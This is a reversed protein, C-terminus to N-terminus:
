LDAFSYAAGFYNINSPNMMESLAHVSVVSQKSGDERNQSGTQEFPYDKRMNKKKM